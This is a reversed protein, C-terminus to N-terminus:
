WGGYATWGGDVMIVAGTIFSAGRSCLYAATEAVEEVQGYRGLPTRREIDADTFSPRFERVTAIYSPALAVVRIGYSAWECALARTLGVLGHKAACYATLQARGLVGFVSAVNLIVGGTGQNIMVEGAAQSMLM